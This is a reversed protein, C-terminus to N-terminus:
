KRLVDKALVINLLQMNNWIDYNIYGKRKKYM